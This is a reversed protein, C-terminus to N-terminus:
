NTCQCLSKRREEPVFFDFLNNTQDVEVQYGIPNENTDKLEELWIAESTNQSSVIGELEGQSTDFRPFWQSGSDTKYKYSAIKGAMGKITEPSLVLMETKQKIEHDFTLQCNDAWTTDSGPNRTNCYFKRYKDITTFDAENFIGDKTVAYLMAYEPNWSNTASGNFVFPYIKATGSDSVAINIERLFLERAEAMKATDIGILSDKRLLQDILILEEGSITDNRFIEDFTFELENEYFTIQEVPEELLLSFFEKMTARANEIAKKLIDREFAKRKLEDLCMQKVEQVVKYDRRVKREVILFEFGEVGKEPIFWPNITASLIQPNLGIFYISNQNKNYRFNDESFTGFDFGAKVWGRGLMVLNSKKLKKVAKEDLEDKYKNTLLQLNANKVLGFDDGKKVLKEIFNKEQRTRLNKNLHNQKYPKSNAIKNIFYMYLSYDNDQTSEGMHQLYESYINRRRIEGAEYDSQLNEITTIFDQHITEVNSQVESSQIINKEQVKYAYSQVVEGYYEATILQGIDKISRVDVPTDKLKLKTSILLGFPDFFAFVIVLAVVVIVQFLFPIASAIKTWFM